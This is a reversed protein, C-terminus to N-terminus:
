ENTPSEVTPHPSEMLARLKMCASDFPEASQELLAIVERVEELKERVAAEEATCLSPAEQERQALAAQWAKWAAMKEIMTEVAGINPDKYTDFWEEFAKRETNNTMPSDKEICAIALIIMVIGDAILEADSKPLLNWGFYNNEAIWFLVAFFFIWWNM